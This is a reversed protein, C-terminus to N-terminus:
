WAKQAAASSDAVAATLDPTGPLLRSCVGWISLKACQGGSPLEPGHLPNAPQLGLAASRASTDRQARGRIQEGANPGCTKCGRLLLMAVTAAWVNSTRSCGERLDSAAKRTSAHWDHVSQLLLTALCDYWGTCLQRMRRNSPPTGQRGAAAAPRCYRLVSRLATGMAAVPCCTRRRGLRHHRSSDCCRLM